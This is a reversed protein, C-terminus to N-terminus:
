IASRFTSDQPWYFIMICVISGGRELEIVSSTWLCGWPTQRHKGLDDENGNHWFGVLRQPLSINRIKINRVMGYYCNGYYETDPPIFRPGGKEANEGCKGCKEANRQMKKEQIGGLFFGQTAVWICWNTETDPTSKRPGRPMYSDFPPWFTGEFHCKTWNEHSQAM